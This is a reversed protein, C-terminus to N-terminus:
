ETEGTNPQKKEGPMIEQRLIPVDVPADFGLRVKDGNIGLVTVVIGGGINVREGIKRSLVLM